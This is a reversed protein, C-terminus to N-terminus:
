FPLAVAVGATPIPQIEPHQSLPLPLRSTLRNVLRVASNEKPAAEGLHYESMQDIFTIAIHVQM